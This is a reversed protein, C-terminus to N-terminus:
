NQLMLMYIKTSQPITQRLLTFHNQKELFERFKLKKRKLIRTIQGELNKGKQKAFLTVEVKDGDFATSINRAAVFIDGIDKTDPSVFGYGNPNIILTGSLKNSSPISNLKFRKGSRSLFADETLKHLMSKLEAYEYDSTLDFRRAIDKPKFASTPNKKFFSKLEKKM